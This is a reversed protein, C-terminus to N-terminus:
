APVPTLFLGPCHPKWAYSALNVSVPSPAGGRRVWQRPPAPDAKAIKGPLAEDQALGACTRRHGDVRV